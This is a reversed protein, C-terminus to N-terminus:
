DFIVVDLCDNAQRRLQEVIGADRGANDDGPRLLFFGGSRAPFFKERNLASRSNSLQGRASNIEACLMDLFNDSGELFNSAM